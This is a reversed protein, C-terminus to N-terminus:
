RLKLRKRILDHRLSRRYMRALAPNHRCSEWSEPDAEALAAADLRDQERPSLTCWYEEIAELEGLLRADDDLKQHRSKVASREAARETELRRDREARSEFGKPSAYDKRISDVLYGAANIRIRTDKRETLWDFVEVKAAIADTPFHRALDVATAETVGRAVLAVASASREGAPVEPPAPPATAGHRCLRIIWERGNKRYREDRPLPELFDIGELEDLAPQLKEKIKGANSAYNRSLGVHEFAFEKLDFEWDSRLYFRKDLFRYVRKSIASRFAFYRDLDLRKLNDAQCSQIFTTNWTFSSFPLGARRPRGAREDDIIVSEIIHLKASLYRKTKNDWWTNNYHLSVGVWRNLSEDVRKYYKSEDPWGLVKLLEYRTFNVKPETFNNRLRTLQILGVLVDTDAATPLGYADSGTITLTGHPSAYHLTKQGKPARDALLALPFEALNMEDRGARPNAPRAPEDEVPFLTREILM